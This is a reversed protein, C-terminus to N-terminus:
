ALNQAPWIVVGKVRDNEWQKLSGVQREERGLTKRIVTAQIGYAIAQASLVYCAYNGM